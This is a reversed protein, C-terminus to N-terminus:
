IVGHNLRRYLKICEDAPRDWSLKLVESHAAGSLVEHLPSYKLVSVIMNALEDVDWFDVKLTNTLIESVGSQKSIITPTKKYMAELPVIGFPESVSPMVFVDAMGFLQNKDEETYFGHFTFKHAIGLDAALNIMRPLMDGTGAMIFHTNPEKELVRKAAKIFYEPGKQLTVRGAYLVIKDRQKIPNDDFREPSLYSKGNHIVVIKEEPIFYKNIITDKIKNSIAIIRDAALMGEREIAYIRSDAHLGGSKDFETIHIHVILPKGTKKKVAIAAPFTTWDHSHIVDFEEDEILLDLKEKFRYVEELLNKGYLEKEGSKADSMTLFSSYKKDYEEFSNDYAGLLTKFKKVKVASSKILNNAILLKLHSQGLEKPGYPMIYTVDIGKKVLEQTLEYCVVGVGGAFYPPFEWGLM